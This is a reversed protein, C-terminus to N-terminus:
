LIIESVMYVNEVDGIVIEDRKRRVRRIVMRQEERVTPDNSGRLSRTPEALSVTPDRCGVIVGLVSSFVDGM